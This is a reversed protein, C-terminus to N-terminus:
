AVVHFRIRGWDPLRGWGTRGDFLRAVDDVRALPVELRVVAGDVDVAPRVGVRLELEADDGIVAFTAGDGVLERRLAPGLAASAAAGMEVVTRGLRTRCRLTAVRLEVMSSGDQRRRREIEEAREADATLSPRDLATVLRRDHRALM